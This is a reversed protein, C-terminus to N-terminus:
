ASIVSSPSCQQVKVSEKSLSGVSALTIYITVQQMNLRLMACRSLLLRVKKSSYDGAEFAYRPPLVLTLALSVLRVEFSDAVRKSINTWIIAPESSASPSASAAAAAAAAAATAAAAAAKNLAAL